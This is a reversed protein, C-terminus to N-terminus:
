ICPLTVKLINKDCIVLATVICLFSLQTQISGPPELCHPPDSVLKSLRVPDCLCLSAALSLCAHLLPVCVALSPICSIPLYQRLQLLLHTNFCYFSLHHSPVLTPPDLLEVLSKSISTVALTTEGACVERLDIQFCSSIFMLLAM